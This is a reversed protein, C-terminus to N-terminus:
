QSWNNSPLRHRRIPRLVRRQRFPHHDLHRSQRRLVDFQAQSMRAPAGKRVAITETAPPLSPNSITM